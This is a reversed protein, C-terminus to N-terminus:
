NRKRRRGTLSLTYTRGGEKVKGNLTVQVNTAGLPDRVFVVGPGEAPPLLNPTLVRTSNVRSTGSSIFFNYREYRVLTGVNAAADYVYDYAIMDIDNQDGQTHPLPHGNADLKPVMMCMSDSDRSGLTPVWFTCLQVWAAGEAEVTMDEVDAMITQMTTTLDSQLRAQASIMDSAASTTIVFQTIMLGIILSVFLGMSVELLTFGSVARQGRTTHSLAHSHFGFTAM